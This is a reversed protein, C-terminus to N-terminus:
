NDIIEDLFWRCQYRLFQHSASLRHDDPVLHLTTGPHEKAFRLSNEFPVINDNLGHTIEIYETKPHYSQVIYEEASM